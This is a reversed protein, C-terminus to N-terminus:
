LLANSPRFFTGFFQFQKPLCDLTKLSTIEVLLDKFTLLVVSINWLILKKVRILQFPIHVDTVRVRKEPDYLEM